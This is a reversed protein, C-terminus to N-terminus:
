MRTSDPISALRMVPRTRDYLYLTKVTAFLHARCPNSGAHIAIRLTLVPKSAYSLSTDKAAPLLARGQRAILPLGEVWGSNGRHDAVNSYSPLWDSRNTHRKM